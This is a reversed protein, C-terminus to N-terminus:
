NEKNYVYFRNKGNKKAFYLAEDAKKYLKIFTKAEETTIAVGISSTIKLDENKEYKIQRIDDCVIEAKRKVDEKTAVHNMFVVFEDGGLRGLIDNARFAARITKAVLKIIEDGCDHGLTDNISKFNDIDIIMFASVLEANRRDSLVKRTMQEFTNRNYMGTFMDQEAKNKLSLEYKKREDVDKARFYGMIHGTDEDKVLNIVFASWIYGGIKNDVRFEAYSETIGDDYNKRLMSVDFFKIVKPYDEAFVTKEGLKKVVNTITLKGEEDKYEDLSRDTILVEDDDLDMEFFVMAGEVTATRFQEARKKKELDMMRKTVNEAVGVARYPKGNDDYMTTYITKEWRYEGLYENEPVVNRIRYTFKVDNKGAYVRNYANRIIEIDDPHYVGSNIISEPVNVLIKSGGYVKLSSATNIIQKHEIDLDWVCINTKSIAIRFREEDQLRQKKAEMEVHSLGIIAFVIVLAVFVCIFSTLFPHHYVLNTWNEYDTANLVNKVVIENVEQKTIVAVTKNIINYLQKDEQKNLGFCMHWGLDSMWFSRLTNYKPMRMFFEASYTAVFTVDAKGSKLADLCEEASNYYVFTNNPMKKRFIENTVQGYTLAVVNNEDYLNATDKKTIASANIEVYPLTTDLNLKDAIYYDNVMGSLLQAKGSRVMDIADDYSNAVEYKFRFGTREEVKNLIDAIVGRYEKKEFDFYEIPMWSSNVAVTVIPHEKIYKLEDQTFVVANNASMSYYKLNLNEKFYPTNVAILEQAYDIKDIIEKNGKGTVFYYPKPKWRLIIKEDDIKRLSATYMADILATDAKLADCLEEQSDFTVISYKKVGQEKFYELIDMNGAFGKIVGVRIGDMTRPDDINIKTNSDLVSFAGHQTFLELQPFEFKKETEDTKQVMGVIDLEGNEVMEMATSYTLPKIEGTPNGMFDKEKIESVFEYNWGTYKALERLYEYGYGSNKGNEDTENFGDMQFFAVRIVSQKEQAMIPVFASVAICLSILIVM